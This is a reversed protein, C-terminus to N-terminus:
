RAIVASGEPCMAEFTSGVPSWSAYAPLDYRQRTIHQFAFGTASDSDRFGRHEHHKLHKFAAHVACESNFDVGPQDDALQELATGRKV